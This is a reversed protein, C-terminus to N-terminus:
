QGIEGSLQAVRDGGSGSPTSPGLTQVRGTIAEAELQEVRRTLSAFQRAFDENPDTNTVDGLQIDAPRRADNREPPPWLRPLCYRLWEKVPLLGSAVTVGLSICSIILAIWSEQMIPPIYSAQFHKHTSSSLSFFFVPHFRAPPGEIGVTSAIVFAPADITSSPVIPRFSRTYIRCACLVNGRRYTYFAKFPIIGLPKTLIDVKNLM